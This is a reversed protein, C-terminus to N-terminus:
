PRLPPAVELQDGLLGLAADAPLPHRAAIEGVSECRGAVVLVRDARLAPGVDADDGGVVVHQGRMLRVSAIGLLDLDEGALDPRGRLDGASDRRHAVPHRLALRPHVQRQEAAVHDRHPGRDGQAV